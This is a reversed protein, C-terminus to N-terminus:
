HTKPLRSRKGAELTCSPVHYSTIASLFPSNLIWRSQLCCRQPKPLTLQLDSPFHHPMSAILLEQAVSCLHKIAQARISCSNLATPSCSISDQQSDRHSVSLSFLPCGGLVIYSAEKLVSAFEVKLLLGTGSTKIMTNCRRNNSAYGTNPEEVM